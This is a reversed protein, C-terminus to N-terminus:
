FKMYDEFQQQMEATLEPCKKTVKEKFTQEM